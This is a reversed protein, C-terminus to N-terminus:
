AHGSRAEPTDRTGLLGATQDHLFAILDEMSQIYTENQSGAHQIWGRWPQDEEEWIRLVFAHRRGPYDKM